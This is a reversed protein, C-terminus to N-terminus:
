GSHATQPPPGSSLCAFPTLASSANPTPRTPHTLSPPRRCRSSPRVALESRSRPPPGRGGPQAPPCRSLLPGTGQPPATPVLHECNDLILLLCQARLTDCLGDDVPRGSTDTAGLVQAVREALLESRTLPALDVLWVGAPFHAVEDVAAHLALRTKGSGGTGTLTLLRYQRLMRGVAVLEHERGIFRTLPTPLNHLKSQSQPKGSM